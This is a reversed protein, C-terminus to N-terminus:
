NLSVPNDQRKLSIEYLRVLKPLNYKLVFAPLLILVMNVVAVPLAITLWINSEGGYMKFDLLLILFALPASLYHIIIGYTAELIYRSLYDPDKPNDIKNKRLGTFMGLEPVKDKWKKVGILKYFKYSAKSTKFIKKKYDFLREPMKRIVIAVIADLIISAITFGITLLIYIYFDYSPNFIINFGITLSMSFLIIVLYLIM